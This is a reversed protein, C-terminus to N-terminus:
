ALLAPCSLKLKGVALYIASVYGEFTRFGRARRKASQIISNIGEAIANTLRHFFYSLIQQKYKKLTNSVKKMPELRSRRLWSILRNFVAEGDEYRECRYMTDLSQVMRFARGTKPFEKSITQLKEAQQETMRTEPIMLLKKGSDRRRSRQRGQEERRVQDMAKLMLQKVHFKDITVIANPFCLDIGSMYPASMDCAVQQIKECDGGKDILQLSFAEVNGAGRGEGAYIVRRAVADSIVTVYSQGRKFSTEDICIAGISSLDDEKVAKFVWYRLIGTASTHSIRLLKRANEVPMSKLLLMAYSEFLLTYRSKPRAWPATVVRIGHKKCKIRPRRCHIYCPFFVVDGHRWTREKEEDDYRECLEGCEPCPYKVTKIFTVTVHVERKEENFETQGIQWPKTLGISQAFMSEYNNFEDMKM